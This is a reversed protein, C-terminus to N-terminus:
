ILVSDSKLHVESWAQFYVVLRVSAQPIRNKYSCIKANLYHLIVHYAPVQTFMPSFVFSSLVIIFRSQERELDILLHLVM